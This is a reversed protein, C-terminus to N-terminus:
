ISNNGKISLVNKNKIEKQKYERTTIMNPLSTEQANIYKM